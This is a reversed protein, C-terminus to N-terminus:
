AIGAFCGLLSNAQYGLRSASWPHGLSAYHWCCWESSWWWVIVVEVEVMDLKVELEVMAAAVV